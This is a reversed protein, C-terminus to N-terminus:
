LKATILYLLHHELYFIYAKLANRFKYLVPPKSISFKHVLFITKFLYTQDWTQPQNCCFLASCVVLQKFGFILKEFQECQFGPIHTYVWNVFSKFLTSFLIQVNKWLCFCAVCIVAIPGFSNKNQNSDSGVARYISSSKFLM